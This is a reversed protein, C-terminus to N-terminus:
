QVFRLNIKRVISIFTIETNNLMAAKMLSKVSGVERLVEKSTSDARRLLNRLVGATAQRLEGNSSQLQMLLTKISEKYSCLLAKNGSDGFTLNTLIMGAYKKLQNCLTEETINGRVFHEIELLEVISHIDGLQCIAQRYGEDFSSKMIQPIIQVPHKNGDPPLNDCTFETGNKLSETYDTIVELLSLIKMERKRAKEDPQSKVSNQLAKSAKKRM